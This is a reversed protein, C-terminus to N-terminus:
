IRSRRRAAGLALLGFGVLILSAPEPVSSPRVLYADGSSAVSMSICRAGPNFSCAGVGLPGTTNNQTIAEFLVDGAALEPKLSIGASDRLDFNFNLISAITGWMTSDGSFGGIVATSSANGGLGVISGSAYNGGIGFLVFNGSNFM